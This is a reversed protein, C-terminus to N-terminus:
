RSIYIAVSLLHYMVAPREKRMVSFGTTNPLPVRRICYSLEGTYLLRVAKRVENKSGVQSKNGVHM